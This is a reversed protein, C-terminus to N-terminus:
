IFNGGDVVITQGTVFGANAILSYVVEAIDKPEAVRGLPTGEALKSIHAEKGEVWRTQVIGPAVANVRVEPALVRALSKTVSTAAAKSAAYAISSGLGTLGAISSINIICGRNKKLEEAAARCCFFMGKVNVGFIEDWYEDKMGELDSHDVFHTMGANNVLIDLAGFDSTVQSVMAKVEADVAVNAKYIKSQVGLDKVEQCTKLAEEESRSYNLAINVGSKALVLAIARGIGTGGGTILATKDKLM